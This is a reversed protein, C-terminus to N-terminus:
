SNIFQTFLVKNIRGKTLFSNVTDRIEEKLREKGKPTSIQSYNKSSLVIIIIDRVQPMRKNIEEQVEKNDVDFEMEVKFLKQGQDEALNVLFYDLPVAFTGSQEASGEKDDMLSGEIIPEMSPRELEKKKGLYLFVGIGLIVITNLTIIVLLLPSSKSKKSQDTSKSSDDLKEATNDAVFGGIFLNELAQQLLGLALLVKTLISEALAFVIWALLRVM